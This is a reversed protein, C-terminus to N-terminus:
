WFNGLTMRLRTDHKGAALRAVSERSSVLPTRNSLTQALQALKNYVSVPAVIASACGYYFCHSLTRWNM